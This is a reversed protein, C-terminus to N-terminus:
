RAATSPALSDYLDLASVTCDRVILRLTIRDDHPALPFRWYNPGELWMIPVSPPSETAPIVEGDALLTVHCAEGTGWPPLATEIAVEVGPIPQAPPDRPVEIDVTLHDDNPLLPSPAVRFRPRLAAPYSTMLGHVSHFPLAFESIPAGDISGGLAHVRVDDLRLAPRYPIAVLGLDGLPVAAPFRGFTADAVLFHTGGDVAFADSELTDATDDMLALQAFFFSGGDKSRLVNYPGHVRRDLMRPRMTPVRLLGVVLQESPYISRFSAKADAGIRQSTAFVALLVALLAAVQPRYGRPAIRTLLPVVVALRIPSSIVLAVPVLAVLYVIIDLVRERWEQLESVRFEIITRWWVVLGMAVILIWPLVGLILYRPFAVLQVCVAVGGPLTTFLWALIIIAEARPPPGASAGGPRRLAGVCRSFGLIAFGAVCCADIWSVSGFELLQRLVAVISENASLGAPQALSAPVGFNLFQLGRPDLGGASLWAFWAAWVCLVTGAVLLGRTTRLSRPRAVAFFCIAAPIAAANHTTIQALLPGPPLPAAWPLSPVVLLNPALGALLAPPIDALRANGGLAVAVVLVTVALCVATVHMQLTMSLWFLAAVLRESRGDIQFRLLSHITLISFLPLLNSHTLWAWASAVTGSLLFLVSAAGAVASGGLRRALAFFAVVTLGEAALLTMSLADLRHICLPLSLLYYWNPGIVQGIFGSPISPLHSGGDTRAIVLANMLDRLTDTYIEPGGLRLVRHYYFVAITAVVLLPLFGRMLATRDSRAVPSRRVAQLRRGYVWLWGITSLVLAISVWPWQRLDIIM